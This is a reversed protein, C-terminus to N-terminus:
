GNLFDMLDMRKEMRKEEDYEQSSSASGSANKIMRSARDSTASSERRNSSSLESLFSHLPSHTHQSNQSLDSVSHRPRGLHVRSPPMVGSPEEAPGSPKAMNYDPKFFSEGSSLAKPQSMKQLALSLGPIDCIGDRQSTRLEYDLQDLDVGHLMPLFHVFRWKFPVRVYGQNEFLIDRTSGSVYSDKRTNSVDLVDKFAESFSLKPHQVLEVNQKKGMYYDDWYAADNCRDKFDYDNRVFGKVFRYCFWLIRKWRQPQHRWCELKSWRGRYYWGKKGLESNCLQRITHEGIAGKYAYTNSLEKKTISAWSHRWPRERYIFVLVDVFCSLPQMFTAIYELWIVPGHLIEYRYQIVDVALPFSWIVVYSFPYIFISRLQKQIQARRKKFEQYTESQFNHQLGLIHDSGTPVFGAGEQDKQSQSDDKLRNLGEPFTQLSQSRSGASRVPSLATPDHRQFNERSTKGRALSSSRRKIPNFSGGSNKKQVRNANKANSHIKSKSFHNFYDEEKANDVNSEGATDQYLATRPSTNSFSMCRKKFHYPISNSRHGKLKPRELKSPTTLAEPIHTGFTGDVDDNSLTEAFSDLRQAKTHKEIDEDHYDEFSFFFFNGVSKGLKSLGSKKFVYKCYVRSRQGLTLLRGKSDRERRIDVSSNHRFSGIQNKIKRNEKSVFIYISIYVTFILVIIFYRPAWSLVIRYWLPFPPLYCWASMAKYGGQRAQFPFDYSNNDLIVRDNLNVPIFKNFDVFALSALVMPLLFTAPYLFHRLRYLGGEMNGSSNNQWKWSPVFILLAFHVAFIAIAFDAGEIGFATIWGLTNYFAPYGYVRNEILIAVPYILLVLAKLFDCSILFLILQHRFVKRRRDICLICYLGVMAALISLSSSTIAIGRLRLLQGRNYTSFMGPLGLLQNVTTTNWTRNLRVPEIVRGGAFFTTNPLSMKNTHM